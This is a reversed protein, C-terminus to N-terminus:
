AGRHSAGVEAWNKGRALAAPYYRSVKFEQALRATPEGRGIREIIEIVQAKSLKRRHALEGPGVTGHRVADAANDKADGWALNSAFNDQSNGNLHRGLPKGEPPLGVYALLVMRHVFAKNRRKPKGEAITVVFYGRCLRQSLELLAGSRNSFIRGDDSALYGSYGPIPKVTFRGYFLGDLM